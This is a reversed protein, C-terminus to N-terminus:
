FGIEKLECIKNVSYHRVEIMLAIGFIKSILKREKMPTGGKSVGEYKSEAKLPSAAAEATGPVLM